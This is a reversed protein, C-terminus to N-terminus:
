KSVHLAKVALGSSAPIVAECHTKSMTALPPALM